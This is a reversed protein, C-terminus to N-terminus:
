PVVVYRRILNLRGTYLDIGKGDVDAHVVDEGWQQHQPVEVGNEVAFRVGEFIASDNEELQAEYYGGAFWMQYLKMVDAWPVWEYTAVCPVWLLYHEGLPDKTPKVRLSVINGSLTRVDSGGIYPLNKNVVKLSYTFEVDGIYVTM